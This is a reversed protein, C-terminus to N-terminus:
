IVEKGRMEKMIDQILWRGKLLQDYCGNKVSFDYVQRWSCCPNEDLFAVIKQIQTTSDKVGIFKFIDFNTIVADADYQYKDPSADHVLYKVAGKWNTKGDKKRVYEVYQSPIDLRNVVTQILVPNNLSAVWHYHPKKLEGSEPMIDKDHLIYAWKDFYNRITELVDDCVYNEADPYLVGCFKRGASAM